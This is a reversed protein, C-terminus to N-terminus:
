RETAARLLWAPCILPRRAPDRCRWPNVSARGPNGSPRAWRSPWQRRSRRRHGRHRNIYYQHLLLFLLLLLLLVILLIFYLIICYYYLLSSLLLFLLLLLLLLLILINDSHLPYLPRRYIARTIPQWAFYLFVQILRAQSSSSGTSLTSTTSLSLHNPTKGLSPKSRVHYEEENESKVGPDSDKTETSDM